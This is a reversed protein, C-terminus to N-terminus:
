CSRVCSATVMQGLAMWPTFILFVSSFNKTATSCIKLGSSPRPLSPDGDGLVGGGGCGGGVVVVLGGGGVIAVGGGGSVVVVAVVDGADGDFGSSPQPHLLGGASAIGQSRQLYAFICVYM